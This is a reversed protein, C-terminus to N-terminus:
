AKKGVSKLLKLWEENNVGIALGKKTTLELIKRSNNKAM